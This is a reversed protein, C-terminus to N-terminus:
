FPYGINKTLHNSSTYRKYSTAKFNTLEPPDSWLRSSRSAYVLTALKFGATSIHPINTLCGTDEFTSSIDHDVTAKVQFIPEIKERRSVTPNREAYLDHLM